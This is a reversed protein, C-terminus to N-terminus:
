NTPQTTQTQRYQELVSRWKDIIRAQEEYEKRSIEGNEFAQYTRDETADIDPNSRNGVLFTPKRQAVLMKDLELFQYDKYLQDRFKLADERSAEPNENAWNSWDDMINALRQAKAPDFNIDSQQFARSFFQEGQKFWNPASSIGANQESRSVLTNYDSVKLQGARLFGRADLRVDEGNSARLRLDAYVSQNTIAESGTMVAKYYFRYDEPDLIERNQEIWDTTLQGTYLLQDGTKSMREAAEKELRDAERRARDMEAIEKRSRAESASNAKELWMMQRESSMGEYDGKLLKQVAADPDQLIDYRVGASVLDDQFKLGLSAAEQADIVGGDYSQQLLLQAKTKVLAQQEEDGQVALESLTAMNITLQAKQQDMQGTIANSRVDFGKKFAMENINQTFTALGASDGELEKSYRETLDKTFAQYRDFQTSYERDSKEMDFVYNQLEMAAQTTVSSVKLARENDVVKGAIDAGIQALQGIAQTGVTSGGATAGGRTIQPQTQGLQDEFLQIKPM